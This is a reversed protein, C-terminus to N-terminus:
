SSDEHTQKGALKRCKRDSFISCDTESQRDGWKSVAVECLSNATVTTRAMEPIRVKGFKNYKLTISPIANSIATTLTQREEVSLTLAPTSNQLKATLASLPSNPM